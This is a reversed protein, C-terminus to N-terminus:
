TAGGSDTISVVDGTYDKESVMWQHVITTSAGTDLLIRDTPTGNVTDKRLQELYRTKQRFSKRPCEKAYHGDQGCKWCTIEQRPKTRGNPSAETKPKRWPNTSRGPSSPQNHRSQPQLTRGREEVRESSIYTQMQEAMHYPDQPQERIIWQRMAAPIGQIMQEMAVKRKMQDPGADPTLWQDTLKMAEVAYEEPTM